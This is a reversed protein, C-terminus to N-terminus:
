FVSLFKMLVDTDLKGGHSIRKYLNIFATFSRLNEGTVIGLANFNERPYFSCTAALVVAFSAGVTGTWGADASLLASLQEGSDPLVEPTDPDPIDDLRHLVICSM